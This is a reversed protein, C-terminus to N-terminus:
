QSYKRHLHQYIDHDKPREYHECFSNHDAESEFSPTGPRRDVDLQRKYSDPRQRISGLLGDWLGVPLRFGWRRGFGNRSIPWLIRRAWCYVSATALYKKSRAM